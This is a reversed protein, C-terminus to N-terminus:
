TGFAEHLDLLGFAARTVHRGTIRANQKTQPPACLDLVELYGPWTPLNIPQFVYGHIPDSCHLLTSPNHRARKWPYPALLLLHAHDTPRQLRALGNGTEYHPSEVHGRKRVFALHGSVYTANM